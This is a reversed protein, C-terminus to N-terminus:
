DLFKLRVKDNYDDDSNFRQKVPLGKLTEKELTESILINCKCMM